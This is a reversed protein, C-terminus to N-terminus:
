FFTKVKSLFKLKDQQGWHLPMQGTVLYNMIDVYWPAPNHSIHILQENPFTKSIPTADVTYDMTLRSLHDAVVNKSGKKDRIEIDLEQLRLIWRILSSKADKKSLLYKLAL